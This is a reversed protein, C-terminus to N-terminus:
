TGHYNKLKMENDLWRASWSSQNIGSSQLSRASFEARVGYKDLCPKQAKISMVVLLLYPSINSKIESNIKDTRM